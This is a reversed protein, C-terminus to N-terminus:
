IVSNIANKSLMLREEHSNISIRSYVNENKCCRILYAENALELKNKTLVEHIQTSSFLLTLFYITPDKIRSKTYTQFFIYCAQRIISDPIRDKVIQVVCNGEFTIKKKINENNIIVKIVEIM